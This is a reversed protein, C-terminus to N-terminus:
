TIIGSSSRIYEKQVPEATQVVTVIGHRRFCVMDPEVEGTMAVTPMFGLSEGQPTVIHPNKLWVGIDDESSYKGVYEAGTVAVLTVIDNKKM